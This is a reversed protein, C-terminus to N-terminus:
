KQSLNKDYGAAETYDNQSILGILKKEAKRLPQVQSSFDPYVNLLM